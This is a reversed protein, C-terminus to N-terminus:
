NNKEEKEKNRENNCEDKMIELESNLKEGRSAVMTETNKSEDLNGECSTLM